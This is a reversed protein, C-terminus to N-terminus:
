ICWDSKQKGDYKRALGRDILHQGVDVGDKTAIAGVIRFYKDRAYITLYVRDGPQILTRLEALARRGLEDERACKSRTGTEPTDLGVLRISMRNGLEPPLWRVFVSVTDGDIVRVVEHVYPNGFSVTTFVTFFLATLLQKM